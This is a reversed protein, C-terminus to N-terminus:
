QDSADPAAGGGGEAGADAKECHSDCGNFMLATTAAIAAIAAHTLRPDVKMDILTSETAQYNGGKSM